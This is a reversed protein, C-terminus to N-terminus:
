KQTLTWVGDWGPLPPSEIFHQCRTIYVKSPTISQSSIETHDARRFYALARKWERERYAEIGYNYAELFKNQEESLTGRKGLLEYTKIPHTKGKVRVYDIYRFEFEDKAVEYVSESVHLYIGYQKASSELRAGTNVDDGMMTYNMRTSSGVNGTVIRGTHLGIRHHMMYIREPYDNKKWRQRLGELAKEMRLATKCAEIEQFEVPIPAGWFAVIADGIYKDLTGKEELLISTMETFYENMVIILESPSVLESLSSFSVIDSFFATGKREVGGLEPKHNTEYMDEILKPSVYAGFSERLFLKKRHETLLAFVLVMGYTLVMTFLPIVIPLLLTEGPKPLSTQVMKASAIMKLPVRQMLTKMVYFPDGMFFGYVMSLYFGAMFLLLFLALLPNEKRIVVFSLVTFIFVILVHTLPLQHERIRTTTGGVPRIYNSDLITQIANAHVELGPMYEPGGRYMFFPTVMLDHIVEVSVGIIVIKNYFPSEEPKKQKHLGMSVIVRQRQLSDEIALIWDPLENSVYQEMWDVDEIPDRLTLERTDLIKSLSFVPFTEWQPLDLFHYHSPPGYYNILFTYSGVLPLQPIRYPGFTWERKREDYAPVVSDPIDSFYKLAKMGLSLYLKEPEHAMIGGIPYQRIAGDADAYSNVLGLEPEGSMIAEVPTVLYQPPSLSADKAIKAGLVVDCGRERVRRITQAFLSDGHIPLAMALASDGSQSAFYRLYESQREPTDFLIDFLVVRAGANALNELVSSWITGRSYPWTEPILRWAEDDVEVLVVDTGRSLYTSDEALWGTLPGRRNQMLYDYLRLELRDFLGVYHLILSFLFVFLPVLLVMQKKGLHNYFLSRKEKEQRDEFM